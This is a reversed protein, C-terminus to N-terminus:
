VFSKGLLKEDEKDAAVAACVKVAGIEKFM